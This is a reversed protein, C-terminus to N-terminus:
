TGSRRTQVARAQRHRHVQFLVLATAAAGSTLLMALHWGSSFHAALESFSMTHHPGPHALAPTAIVASVAVGARTARCRNSRM